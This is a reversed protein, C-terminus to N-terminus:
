LIDYLRTTNLVFKPGGIVLLADVESALKLPQKKVSVRKCFCITNKPGSPSSGRRELEEVVLDLSEKAQTTQVVIGIPDVLDLPLEDATGVFWFEVVLRNSCLRDMGEVEPHGM